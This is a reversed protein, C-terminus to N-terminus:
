SILLQRHRVGSIRCMKEKVAVGVLAVEMPGSNFPDRTCLCPWFFPCRPASRRERAAKTDAVSKDVGFSAPEKHQEINM